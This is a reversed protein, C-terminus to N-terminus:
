EEITLFKREKKGFYPLLDNFFSDKGEFKNVALRLNRVTYQHLSTIPVEDGIISTSKKMPNNIDKFDIYNAGTVLDM